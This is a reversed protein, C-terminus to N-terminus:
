VLMGVFAGALHSLVVKTMPNEPQALQGLIMESLESAEQGVRDDVQFPWPSLAYEALIRKMSIDVFAGDAFLLFATVGQNSLIRHIQHPHICLWDGASLHYTQNDIEVQCDGNEVRGFIYYDDRHAYDGSLNAAEPTIRKAYIGGETQWVAKHMPLEKMFLSNWVQRKM